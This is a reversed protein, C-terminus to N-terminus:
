LQKSVMLKFKVFDAQQATLMVRKLLKFKHNKDSEITLSLVSTDEKKRLAKNSEAIKELEVFLPHIAGQNRDRKLVSGDEISSIQHDNVSIMNKSITIVPVEDLSVLTTSEPLEIGESLDHSVPETSFSMLLFLILISFIDLMPMVNLSVSEGNENSVSAM